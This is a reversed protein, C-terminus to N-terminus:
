ENEGIIERLLRFYTTVAAHRSPSDALDGNFLFRITLCNKYETLALTFLLDMKMDRVRQESGDSRDSFYVQDANHEYNRYNYLVASRMLDAANGDRWEEALKALPYADHALDDLFGDQIDRLQDLIPADDKLRNRVLLFNAFFGIIGSVDLPDLYRSNRGTVLTFVAIDKKGTLRQMLLTLIGLFLTNGTLGKDKTFAKILELLPGDIQFEHSFIGGTSDMSQAVTRITMGPQVGALKELWYGSHRRGEASHLFALQRASFDTYQAPMPKVDPRQGAAIATYYQAMEAMMIGGSVGDTLIHHMTVVVTSLDATTQFVKVRFLPFVSLDFATDYEEEIVRRLEEGGIFQGAPVAVVAEEPRLVHQRLSGGERVFVTRLMQHRDVILQLAQGLAPANLSPQEYAMVLVHEGHRYWDSFFTMHNYSLPALGTVRAKAPHGHEEGTQEGDEIFAALGEITRETFLIKLPITKGTIQTIKRALRMAKLSNGGLEFYDDKVGIAKLGLVEEWIAVLHEETETRPRVFANRIRLKMAQIGPLKKRDVKGNPTLPLRELQMMQEPIMFPPLKAALSLRIDALDLPKEATLYAALYKTGTDDMLSIVVASRIDERAELVSEIEGVEVRYGRIKVQGDRRGLFEITGDSRWRGLDGTRYVRESPKFPDPLFREATLEPRKLYGRAVGDGGIYLEGAVGEPVLQGSADLIYIRTNALPKGIVVKETKDIFRYMCSWVTTETPGYMNYLAAPCDKLQTVLSAPLPEGGVILSRLSRPLRQVGGDEVIMRVFTPTSQLMTVRPRDKSRDISHDGKLLSLNRLGKMVAAADIGFDILCAVENVGIKKLDRLIRSCSERTGILSGTKYYRRFANDLIKEKVDPPLDEERIGAEELMIKSLGISSKLYEIFPERVIREVDGIEDGIYTHLMVAVKGSREDHGNDKRSERYIRIKKELEGLDQGLFHTLLNAGIAGASRFTEESGGSTVWVPIDEQIPSPFISFEVMKGQPNQRVVKGGRWLKRVEEIQEFMKAQRGSYNAGALVFDNPNWGAAFSIGVRGGSLNDVVSWEEAIRMADHLPSVVSGARIGIRDTIMALAASVVSPNPFLGGFEHFHREPTWIATFGEQDAFRASEKLLEYKDCGSQRYSSFYFLSFDLAVDNEPEYRDISFLAGDSPHLLVTIGNCLTWLLELVSIDFSTSTVALLCDDESPELRQRIGEFFNIVNRNTIEVGKPRGSSGSTFIVYALDDPSQISGRDADSFLHAKMKFDDILERGIVAACESEAKIFDIRDRPYSPDMPVYAAGAKLVALTSVVLWEDRPLEIGILSDKEIAFSQVLYDALRNSLRNLKEYTYSTGEFILATKDANSAARGEFLEKIVSERQYPEATDNFDTILRQRESVTLYDLLGIAASPKDVIATMLQDLHAALRSATERGYIDTNYEISVVLDDGAEAFNFTLDYRSHVKRRRSAHVNEGAWGRNFGKQGAHIDNNDLILMIDVLPNRSTDRAINLENILEDFPYLHHKYADLTVSKLENLLRLFSNERSFRARLALINLYFGIQGELDPHDRGAVPTGILMDEQGSWRHLLVTVLAYLGMFLTTGNEKNLIRFRRFSDTALTRGVCDGEYSRVAPRIGDEPLELVPLEGALQSLWYLKDEQSEEQQLRRQQWEAYDKYQIRLPPIGFTGGPLISKYGALLEALMVKMSWGDSVIHHTTYSLLWKRDELRYLSGRILPGSALDFPQGHASDTLGIVLNEQDAVGRLDLYEVGSYDQDYPLIVQRIDGEANQRFVTRLIEHRRILQQFSRQLATPDLEGDFVYVGPLSYAINGEGLQSLIWLRRQNSSLAYDPQRGAVPILDAEATSKKNRLYDILEGKRDRIENLLRGPIDGDPRRVRISDETTLELRIDQDILRDILEEIM